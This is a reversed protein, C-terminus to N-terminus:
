PWLYGPFQEKPEQQGQASDLVERTAQVLEQGAVTCEWVVAQPVATM